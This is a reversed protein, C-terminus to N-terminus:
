RSAIATCHADLADIVAPADGLYLAIIRGCRYFHPPAVWDIISNPLDVAIADARVTAIQVDPFLHLHLWAREDLQYVIGPEPHLLAARSEEPEGLAVGRGRLDDLLPAIDPDSPLDALRTSEIGRAAVWYPGPCEAPIHAAVFDDPLPVQGGGMRVTDGVRAVVAGTGDHVQLVGDDSRTLTHDYPWIVLVGPDAADARVRLCGDFEALDGILLAMMEALVGEPPDQRPFAIGAPLDLPPAPPYPGSEVLCVPDPLEAGAEELQAEFAELDAVYLSVCNERVDIGTTAGSGIEQLLAMTTAQAAELEALPVKARRVDVVHELPGGRVYRRLTREGNRTFLVVVKHEPEHEIYLGGFTNAEHAALQEHLVGIPDQLALRRAAEEVTVGHDAAYAEADRRLADSLPQLAPDLTPSAATCGLLLLVVGVLLWAVGRAYVRM